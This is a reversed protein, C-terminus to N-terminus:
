DEENHFLGGQEAKPKGGERALRVIEPFSQVLGNDDLARDADDSSFPEQHAWKNRWDRLEQVLSREARGLTRGFVDNWSEWMLKLLAAVDWEALPKKGAIRDEGMYRLAEAGAQAKHLNKFEREAFPALGQRLLEMAKGVREQNTIAM